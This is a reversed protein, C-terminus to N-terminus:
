YQIRIWGADKPFDDRTLLRKSILQRYSTITGDHSVVYINGKEEQKCGRLFEEGIIRFEKEPLANIGDKWLEESVQHDLNFEPFVKEINERKMMIDCPLTRWEQKQPFMRPSVLPSVIAKVKASGIWIQATELTRQTPSIILTDESKLHFTDRLLYAQEKGEKTLSPNKMHLSNPTDLTHQGQGHRVFILEM